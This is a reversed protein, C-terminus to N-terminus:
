FQKEAEVLFGYSLLQWSLNEESGFRALLNITKDLTEKEEETIKLNGCYTNAVSPVRHIEQALYKFYDGYVQISTIVLGFSPLIKNYWYSNFGTCYHNPAFHTLSCFPAALLLKGKDKLLRALEKIALDPYPVHELVESCLIADFSKDERPINIIDSVIDLEKFDYGRVQIGSGDGKGDYEGLDQSTYELHECYKKIHQDGAGADLITSGKPIKFLQNHIWNDRLLENDTGFTALEM